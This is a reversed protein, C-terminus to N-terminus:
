TMAKSSCLFLNVMVTVIHSSTALCRLRGDCEWVSVCSGMGCFGKGNVTKSQRPVSISPQLRTGGGLDSFLSIFPASNTAAVAAYNWKMKNYIDGSVAYSGDSEKLTLASISSFFLFNMLSILPKSHHKPPGSLDHTQDSKGSKATQSTAITTSFRNSFKLPIVNVVLFM